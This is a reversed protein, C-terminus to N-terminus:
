PAQRRHTEPPPDLNITVGIDPFGARYHPIKPRDEKPIRNRKCIRQVLPRVQGRYHNLVDEFWNPGAVSGPQRRRMRIALAAERSAEQIGELDAKDDRNTIMGRAKSAEVRIAEPSDVAPREAEEAVPEYLVHRMGLDALFIRVAQSESDHRGRNRVWWVVAGSVVVGIVTAIAGIAAWDPTM